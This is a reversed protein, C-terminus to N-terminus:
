ALLALLDDRTISAAQAAGDTAVAALARKKEQLALIREEVTDSAILRHVLVPRDQGIRHARDAAQDEAAPNWWPDLLFVHDAATLNLGVGGAKLSLLMVGMAPDDQFARVVAGRDATSGDLRNFKLKRARLGPEILDLFGTWQSFVLAKHGESLVEELTDFLLELKSSSDARQGPLLSRHCAAQRLRLLAELAALVSGGQALNEVIEKRTAALVSDYLAREDDDLTVRLVMDTRPPLEKAVDRKLRRLVFPKIRQRLREAAGRDGEAIPKAYREEFDSRGGLLGRNLFHFQSWLDTLRNEVPTGTLAIRTEADLEFASRAVQSDPNKITQAEDLVVTKWRKASLLPTDMRLIAYTTLTIDAKEDLARSPGHYTSVRLSPRFRKIEENWNFLVSAPCVVLAPTEIACLAQLTKGLGMDDALLAGLGAHSLFRLWSVGRQQYSRLEARLDNPLKADPIGGFDDVLARLTALEAPAPTDLVSCLRALDPLASKSLKGDREDRAALLDMVLHGHARLFDSPLPAFGGGELAVLPSGHQWAATVAEASAREGNSTVFSLGFQSGDTALSPTLEGRLAFASLGTGTVHVDGLVELRESLRVAAEGELRRRRGVELGLKQELLRSLKNEADPDRRAVPGGLYTMRGGDIRACPPDGYVITPLVELVGALVETQLALRPPIDQSGPLLEAPVTVPMQQELAPIVRGVLDAVESRAYVRGQKLANLDSESLESPRLVCLKGDAVVAGNEFSRTIKPHRAAIVRFGDGYAEVRAGIAHFPEGFTVKEGDLTVDDCDALHALLKVMFARPVPGSPTSGFLIDIELDSRTATVDSLAGRQKELTLRTNLPTRGSERVIERQMALKGDVESLVYAITGGPGKMGLLDTGDKEAQALAIAAAVAHECAPLTSPCECSWEADDPFLSVLPSMLGSKTTFRAEIAGDRGRKGTLTGTRALQVGRSWIQPSCEERLADLLKQM